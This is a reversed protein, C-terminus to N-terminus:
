GVVTKGVMMTNPDSPQGEKSYPVLPDKGNAKSPRSVSQSRGRRAAPKAQIGQPANLGTCASAYHGFRKCESCLRPIHEYEIIQFDHADNPLLIPFSEPPQHHADVEVLVRAHSVRTRDRTAKDCCIPNGLKIAIRSLASPHWCEIPLGKLRAWVPEHSIGMDDFTFFPPVSKLLLPRGYIHHTKGELIRTMYEVYWFKFVLWGSPHTRVQCNAKWRDVMGFIAKLGPFRGAFIRFLCLGWDRNIEYLEGDSFTVEPDTSSKFSLKMDLRGYNMLVDEYTPKPGEPKMAVSRPFSDQGGPNVGFFFSPETSQKAVPKYCEPSSNGSDLSNSVHTENSSSPITTMGLKSFSTKAKGKGM